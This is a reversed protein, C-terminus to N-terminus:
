LQLILAEGANCPKFGVRQLLPVIGDRKTFAHCDPIDRWKLERRLESMLAQLARGRTIKPLNQDTILIAESTLKLLGVAVLGGNDVVSKATIYAPNSLEPLPFSNDHIRALDQADISNLVLM